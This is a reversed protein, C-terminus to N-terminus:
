LKWYDRILSSIVNSAIQMIAPVSKSGISSAIGKVSTWVTDSHIDALFQHGTFTIDYIEKIYPIGPNNGCILGDILGAQYLKLCTYQIVDEPYSILNKTLCSVPIPTDYKIDELLLMVDRMCDIDLKMFPVEKDPTHIVFNYWLPFVDFLLFPPSYIRNLRLFIM